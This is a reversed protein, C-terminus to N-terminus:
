ISEARVRNTAFELRGAITAKETQDGPSVWDVAGLRASREDSIPLGTSTWVPQGSWDAHM